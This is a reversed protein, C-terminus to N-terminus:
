RPTLGGKGDPKMWRLKVREHDALIPKKVEPLSGGCALAFAACTNL